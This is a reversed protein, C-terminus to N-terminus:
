CAAIKEDFIDGTDALGCQRQRQGPRHVEAEATNLKGGIGEGAIDGPLTDPTFQIRGFSLDVSRALALALTTKGVGPVDEILLNGGALLAAVALRIQRGKGYIVKELQGILMEAKKNNM